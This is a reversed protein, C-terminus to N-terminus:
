RDPSPLRASALCVKNRGARKAEYMAHDAAAVLHDGTSAHVPMAAVGISITVTRPQIPASFHHEVALRLREALQLAADVDTERMIIAIEEGGYRYVVDGARVNTSLVRALAQLAIDANQHGLDDNYEKFHDVDVMCFGLPRDYRASIDVEKALDTELRRRNPLQTLADTLAMDQTREHLRAASVATAAQVALAELVSVTSDLPVTTVGLHVCVVGIVEAGVVMPVALLDEGPQETGHAVDHRLNGVRGEMRGFRAARGIVGEGVEIPDFGVTEMGPGDSDAVAELETRDESHLWVVVRRSGTIESAATCLGRVTYRLNLSGAVERAFRVVESLQQNHVALRDSQDELQDRAVLLESATHDLGAQISAIEDLDSLEDGVTLDGRGIRDLRTQVGDLGATMRVNLARGRWISDAAALLSIALVAAATRSVAQSQGDLAREREEVLEELLARYSTEYAAFLSQGAVLHDQGDRESDGGANGIELAEDAWGNIWASEKLRVELLLPTLSGGSIDEQEAHLDALAQHGGEYTPLFRDDGSVLYARLASHQNLMADHTLRAVRTADVSARVRPGYVQENAIWMAVMSVAILALGFLVQLRWRRILAVLAVSGGRHARVKPKRM